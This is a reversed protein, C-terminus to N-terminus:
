DLFISIADGLCHWLTGDPWTHGVCRIRDGQDIVACSTQGILKLDSKVGEWVLHVAFSCTRLTHIYNSNGSLCVIYFNPSIENMISPTYLWLKQTKVFCGRYSLGYMSVHRIVIAWGLEQSLNCSALTEFRYIAAIKILCGCRRSASKSENESLSFLSKLSRNESLV